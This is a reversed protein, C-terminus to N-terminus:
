LKCTLFHLFVVKKIEIKFSKNRNMSFINVLSGDRIVIYYCYLLSGFYNAHLNVNKLM